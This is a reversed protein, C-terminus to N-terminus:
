RRCAPSLEANYMKKPKMKIMSRIENVIKGNAIQIKNHELELENKAYEYGGLYPEHYPCSLVINKSINNRYASDDQRHADQDKLDFTQVLSMTSWGKIDHTLFSSKTNPMIKCQREVSDKVDFILLNQVISGSQEISM